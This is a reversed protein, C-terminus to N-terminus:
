GIPEGPNVAAPAAFPGLGAAARFALADETSAPRSIPLVEVSSPKFVPAADQSAAGGQTSVPLRGVLGAISGLAENSKELETVKADFQAKLDNFVSLAVTEGAAITAAGQPTAAALQAAAIVPAMAPVGAKIADVAEAVANARSSPSFLMDIMQDARDSIKALRGNHAWSWAQMAGGMILGSVVDTVAAAHTTDTLGRSLAVGSVAAGALRATSAAYPALYNWTTSASTKLDTM